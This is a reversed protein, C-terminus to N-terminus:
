RLETLLLLSGPAVAMLRSVPHDGQRHLGEGPSLAGGGAGAGQLVFRGQLVLVLVDPVAPLEIREERLLRVVSRVHGRRVMVNWLQAPQAPAGCHLALEGPFHAQSGPGEFTRGGADGQLALHGGRLMVASRDMGEFRSFPGAADIDAVSVRWSLQGGATRSAVTRTWGGGNKWPERPLADLRFHRMSATVPLAM